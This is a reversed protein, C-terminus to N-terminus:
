YQPRGYKATSRWHATYRSINSPSFKRLNRLQAAIRSLKRRSTQPSLMHQHPLLSCDAYTKEAFTTNKVLERFNEGEFTERWVTDTNPVEM